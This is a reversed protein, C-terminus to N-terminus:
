TPDWSSIKHEVLYTITQKSDMFFLPGKLCRLDLLKSACPLFNKILNWLSPVRAKVLLKCTLFRNWRSNRKKKHLFNNILIFKRKKNRMQKFGSLIHNSYYINFNEQGQVIYSCSRYFLEKRRPHLEHRSRASM